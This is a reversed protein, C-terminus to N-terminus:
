KYATIAIRLDLQTWSYTDFDLTIWDSVYGIHEITTDDTWDYVRGILTAKYDYVSWWWHALSYINDDSDIIWTSWADSVTWSGTPHKKYAEIRYNTPQFWFWTIDTEWTGASALREFVITKIGGTATNEVEEWIRLQEKIQWPNYVDTYYPEIQEDIVNDVESLKDSKYKDIM